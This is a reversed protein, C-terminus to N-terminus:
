RFQSRDNLSVPFSVGTSPKRSCRCPISVALSGHSFARHSSRSLLADHALILCSVCKPGPPSTSKQLRPSPLSVFGCMLPLHRPPATTSAVLVSISPGRFGRFTMQIMWAPVQSLHASPCSFHISSRARCNFSGHVWSPRSTHSRLPCYSSMVSSVGGPSFLSSSSRSLMSLVDDAAQSGSVRCTFVFQIQLLIFM